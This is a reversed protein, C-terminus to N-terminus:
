ASSPMRSTCRHSSNLRTSKRDEIALQGFIGCVFKPWDKELLFDIVANGWVNGTYGGAFMFNLPVSVALAVLVALSAAVMFGYFHDFWRRRAAVGIIIGLSVSTLSYAASLENVACYALNGSMGVMGGIVPGGIYAILATGFSDLWLPLEFWAGLVRGGINLVLCLATFGVVQWTKWRKM